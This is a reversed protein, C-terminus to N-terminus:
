PSVEKREPVVRCARELVRDVVDRAEGLYKAPDTLRTLAAADLHRTVAPNEALIEALPRREAFAHDSAKHVLDHAVGRGIEEALAMMVSEAVILGQTAGLNRRMREADITIGEAIARGHALAGATLLFIQPLALQESQWSVHWPADPAGLGLTGALALTVERRRNAHLSALTGVAGGFQIRLARRRAQRM